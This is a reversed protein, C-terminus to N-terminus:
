QRGEQGKALLCDLMYDLQALVEDKGAHSSALDSLAIDVEHLLDAADQDGLLDALKTAGYAWNARRRPDDASTSKTDIMVKLMACVLSAAAPYVDSTKM